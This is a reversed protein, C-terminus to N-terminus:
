ERISLKIRQVEHEENRKAEYAAMDSDSDKILRFIDPQRQSNKAM